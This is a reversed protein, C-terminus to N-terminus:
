NQPLTTKEFRVTHVCDRGDFPNKAPASRYALERGDTEIFRIQETGEWTKNWSMDIHHIVRDNEVTYTGTYAFMTDYLDIKEEATPVLARPTLREPHFVFVTMRGDPGYSIVGRPNKGLADKVEGTELVEYTWSIMRWSGLLLTGLQSMVGVESARMPQLM